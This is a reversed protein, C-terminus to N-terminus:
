RAVPTAAHARYWAVTRRLGEDFNVQARFGFEREERSVDLQRRPQGNPKSTDWRIEGTFGVHRAVTQTLDQSEQWPGTGQRISTKGDAVRVGVGTQAEAVSGGQSWLRLEMM